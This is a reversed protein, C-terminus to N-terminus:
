GLTGTLTRVREEWTGDRSAEWRAAEHGDRFSVSHLPELAARM